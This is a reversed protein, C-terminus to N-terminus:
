VIELCNAPAFFLCFNFLGSRSWALVRKRCVFELLFPSTLEFTHMVYEQHGQLLKHRRESHKFIYVIPTLLGDLLCNSFLKKPRTKPFTTVYFWYNYLFHFHNYNHCYNQKKCTKCLSEFSYIYTM